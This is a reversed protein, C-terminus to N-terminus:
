LVNDFGQKAVVAAIKTDDKEYHLITTVKDKLKFYTIHQLYDQKTAIDYNKDILLVDNM